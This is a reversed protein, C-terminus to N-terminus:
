KGTTLPFDIENEGPKVEVALTTQSNYRAPIPIIKETTPPLSGDDPRVNNIIVKHKGIMAGANKGKRIPYSLTYRGDADTVAFSSGGDGAIFCVDARPVPRGDLTVRGHVKGLPPLKEGCGLCATLILGICFMSTKSM